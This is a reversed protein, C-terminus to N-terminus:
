AYGISALLAEADRVPLSCMGGSCVFAAAEGALEVQARAPHTHPVADIGGIDTVIRSTFPVGLAAEYLAKRQPGATVIEKARLHFDLANLIGAHSVLNSRVAAGVAAFLTDARALWRDDSTLGALRVLAALYVPHANPIADDSTPALRLIVDGVDTASM